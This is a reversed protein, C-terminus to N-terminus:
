CGNICWLSSVGTPRWFHTKAPTCLALISCTGRHGAPIDLPQLPGVFTSHHLPFAAARSCVACTDSDALQAAPFQLGMFNLTDPLFGAMPQPIEAWFPSPGRSEAKLRSIGRSLFTCSFWDLAVAGTRVCSQHNKHTGEM